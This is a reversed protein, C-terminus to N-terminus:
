LKDPAIARLRNTLELGVTYDELQAVAAQFSADDDAALAAVALAYSAEARIAESTNADAVLNKWTSQAAASDGSKSQAFGIAIRAREAFPTGQLETAALQYLEIAKAYEEAEYADDAEKLAAAGALPSGANEKAFAELSEGAVADLYAEQTKAIQGQRMADVAQIGVMLVVFVATAGLIFGKNNKWFLALKEEDSKNPYNEDVNVLNRDDAPTPTEKEAM